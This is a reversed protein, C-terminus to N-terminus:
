FNPKYKKVEVMLQHVNILQSRDPLTSYAHHSMIKHFRHYYQVFQTLTQQLINTGNKFNPFSTLIEQNISDLSKKWGSNFSRLLSGISDKELMLSKEDNNKIHAETRQIFKVLQGFHPQLICEVYEAIRTNLLDKFSDSEKSDGRTREQPCNYM